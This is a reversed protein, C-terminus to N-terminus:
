IVTIVSQSMPVSKEGLNETEGALIIGGHSEISM